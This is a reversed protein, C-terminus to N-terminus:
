EFSAKDRNGLRLFDINKQKLKVLVNDVATHQYSTLLITKGEQVLAQIIHVITTTKGTGPMGLVLAYDKAARIKSIVRRQEMNLESPMADVGGEREFRPPARDIILEALRPRSRDMLQLINNRALGMGTKIEDKDIRYTCRTAADKFVTEDQQEQEAIEHAAMGTDRRMLVKLGVFDENSGTEFEDLRQPLGHLRRSVTVDIARRTIRDVFGNALAYHGNQDSIVIPDGPALSSATLPAYVPKADANGSAAGRSWVPENEQSDRHFRYSWGGATDHENYGPKRRESNPVLLLDAM